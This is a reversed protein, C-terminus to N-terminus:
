FRTVFYKGCVELVETYHEELQLQLVTKIFLLRNESARCKDLLVQSVDSPVTKDSLFNEFLKMIDKGNDLDFMKLSLKLVCNKERDEAFESEFGEWNGILSQLELLQQSSNCENTIKEFLKWKTFNTELDNKSVVLGPLIKEIQHQTEFLSALMSSDLDEEAELEVKLKKLTKVLALRQEVPVLENTCLPSLKLSLKSNPIVELQCIKEIFQFPDNTIKEGDQTLQDIVADLSELFGDNEGEKWIQIIQSIFKKDVDTLVMRAVLRFIEVSDGGTIEFMELERSYQEEYSATVDSSKKMKETHLKVQDLWLEVSAWDGESKAAIKIEVFKVSKKFIRGRAPKPIHKLTSESLICDKVFLKFDEPNVNDLYQQCVSFAEIWNDKSKGHQFFAKLAWDRYLLSPTIKSSGLIKVVRAFTEINDSSLYQLIDRSETELLAFDIRLDNQQILTLAEVTNDNGLIQHYLLLMKVDHGDILPLVRSVMWDQLREKDQHLVTLIDRQQMMDRAMDAGLDATLLTQLHTAYVSWLPLSYRRALSLTLSWTETETLMALGLITDEKYEQDRTFREVDVEGALHSLQHGQHYDTLLEQHRVLESYTQSSDSTNLALAVLRRPSSKLSSPSSLHLIALHTLSLALAPLTSPLSSLSSIALDSPLSLLLGLGLYLDQSAVLPLASCLLELSPPEEQQQDAPQDERLRAASQSLLHLRLIQHSTLASSQERAETFYSDYCLDLGSVSLSGGDSLYFAPLSVSTFSTDLHGSSWSSPLSPPAQALQSLWSSTQQWVVAPTVQHQSLYRSTLSPINLVTMLPSVERSEREAESVADDFVEEEEEEEDKQSDNATGNEKAISREINHTIKRQELNIFAQLIDQINEQDCHSVAFALLDRSQDIDETNGQSALACCIDWGKTYGALIFNNSATQAASLDGVQLARRAVAAWVEGEVGEGGCVRLLSALKMLRQTNKYATPRAQLARRVFELRDQCQLVSVPLVEQLGFDALSQLAAILDYCDQIERVGDPALSLCKRALELDPDHLGSASSYYHRWATVILRLSDATEILGEMVSGALAINSHSGSSLLSETYSLMVGQINVVPILNQLKQLDRLVGRWGDQDLSSGEARATVADFLKKMAESDEMNEKIYALPKVVGNKNLLRSIELHKKFM